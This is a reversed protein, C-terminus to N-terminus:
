FMAPKASWPTKMNARPARVMGCGSKQVDDWLHAAFTIHGVRYGVKNRERTALDPYVYNVMVNLGDIDDRSGLANAELKIDGIYAGNNGMHFKQVGNEQACLYRLAAGKLAEDDGRLAWADMDERAEVWQALGRLPSLTSLWVNPYIFQYDRAVKNIIDTGAGKMSDPFRNVSYFIIAFPDNDIHQPRATLIDSVNGHLDREDTVPATQLFTYLTANVNPKAPRLSVVKEFEAFPEDEVDKLTVWVHKDDDVGGVRTDILHQRADQRLCTPVIQAHMPHVLDCKDTVLEDLYPRHDRMEAAIRFAHSTM